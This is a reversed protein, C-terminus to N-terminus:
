IAFQDAVLGEVDDLEVSFHAGADPDVALEEASMNYRASTVFLTRHRPGGFKCRTTSTPGNSSATTSDAFYLRQRVKVFM